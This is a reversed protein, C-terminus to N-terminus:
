PIRPDRERAALIARLTPLTPELLRGRRRHSVRERRQQVPPDTVYPIQQREVRRLPSQRRRHNRVHVTAILCQLHVGAGATDATRERGPVRCKIMHDRQRVPRIERWELAQTWEVLLQPQKLMALLLVAL